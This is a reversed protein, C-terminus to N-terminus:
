IVDIKSLTYVAREMVGNFENASMLDSKLESNENGINYYSVGGVVPATAMFRGEKRVRRM